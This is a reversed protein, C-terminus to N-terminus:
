FLRRPFFGTIAITEKIKWVQRKIAGIKAAPCAREKYSDHPKEKILRGSLKISRNVMIKKAHIRNKKIRLITIGLTLLIEV